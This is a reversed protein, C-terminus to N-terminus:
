KLFAVSASGDALGEVALGIVANGGGAFINGVSMKHYKTDVGDTVKWIVDGTSSTGSVTAKFATAKDDANDDGTYSGVKTAAAYNAFNKVADVLEQGEEPTIVPTTEAAGGGKVESITSTGAALKYEPAKSVDAVHDLKDSNTSTCTNVLGYAIAFTVDKSPDVPTVYFEFLVGDDTKVPASSAWSVKIYQEGDDETLINQTFATDALYTKNRGPVYMGIKADGSSIGYEFNNLKDTKVKNESTVKLWIQLASTYSGVLDDCRVTFYQSGYEDVGTSQTVGTGLTIDYTPDAYSVTAVASITMIAAALGAIIKKLM